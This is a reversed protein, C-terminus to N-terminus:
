IDNTEEILKDIIKESLIEAIQEVVRKEENILKSHQKTASFEKKETLQFKLVKKNINDILQVKVIINIEYKTVQNNINKEKISRNKTSAISLKYDNNDNNKKLNELISNKLKYNVRKDGSTEIETINFKILDLKNYAKFGCGSLFSILFFILIKKKNM